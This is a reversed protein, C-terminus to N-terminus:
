KAWIKAIQAQLQQTSGEIEQVSNLFDADFDDRYIHLMEHLFGAAQVAESKGSNIVISSETSTLKATFADVNEPLDSRSVNVTIRRENDGIKRTEPTMEANRANRGKAYGFQFVTIVANLVSETRMGKPFMTKIQDLEGVTLDYKPNIKIAAATRKVDAM